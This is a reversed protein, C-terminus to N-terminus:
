KTTPNDRLQIISDAAQQLVSHVAIKASENLNNNSIDPHLRNLTMWNSVVEAAKTLTKYREDQIMKLENQLIKIEALHKDSQSAYKGTEIAYHEAAKRAEDRERRMICTPRQCHEGCSHVPSLAHELQEKLQVLEEKLDDCEKM